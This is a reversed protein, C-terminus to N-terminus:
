DDGNERPDSGASPRAGAARGDIELRDGVAGSGSMGAFGLRAWVRTDGAALRELGRRESLREFIHRLRWRARPFASLGCRWGGCGGSGRAAKRGRAAAACDRGRGRARRPPERQQDRVRVRGVARGAPDVGTDPRAARGYRAARRRCEASETSSVERYPQMSGGGSDRERGDARAGSTSTLAVSSRAPRRGPGIRDDPGLLMSFCPERDVGVKGAGRRRRGRFQRQNILGDVATM